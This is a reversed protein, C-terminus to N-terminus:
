LGTRAMDRRLRSQRLRRAIGGLGEGARCRGSSGRLSLPSGQTDSAPLSVVLLCSKAAKATETLAQAFTFMTEFSGAPLDSQDHLQRAYAVWEDVLVLCPGHEVFLERLVDGPSTANEDDKAISAYAPKGGLQYALKGWLTRVVTGDPKTVPNGPSIKNGVLVVRQVKPLGKVGAEALVGDVGALESPAVGSFLHYLALMSHTKGGGFDTQFQVVPDGGQGAVRQVAGVLLRQLSETLFTRRFFETPKLYEASGEGPYVQWLDAAFEAQHYCGSSVDPHPTVLERSM